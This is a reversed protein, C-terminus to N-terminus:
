PATDAAADRARLPATGAEAAPARPPAADAPSALIDAIDPGDALSSPRRRRVVPEIAATSREVAIWTEDLDPGAPGPSPSRDAAGPRARPPRMAVRRGAARAARDPPEDLLPPEPEATLRIQVGAYTLVAAIALAVVLGWEIGSTMAYLRHGEIGQKDFIRWIILLCTWGGAAVIVGGDGGPVHFARGEARAFVLVLVGGAVLLVAAEVFSFAGWGTLTESLSRLNTVGRAIVTEQYWPLFLSIFLGVAAGAALRRERTLREWVRSLRGWVAEARDVMAEMRPSEDGSSM